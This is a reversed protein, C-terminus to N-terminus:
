YNPDFHAKNDWAEQDCAKCYMGVCIGNDDLTHPQYQEMCDEMKPYPVHVKFKRGLSYDVFREICCEKHIAGDNFKEHESSELEKRKGCITPTSSM